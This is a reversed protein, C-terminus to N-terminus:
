KKARKEILNLDYNKGNVIFTIQGEAKTINVASCSTNGNLAEALFTILDAKQTNAKRNRKGGTNDLDYGHPTAKPTAKPQVIRTGTKRYNQSINEQEATLDYELHEKNHEDKNVKDDYALLEAIEEESMGLKRMSALQSETPKAM